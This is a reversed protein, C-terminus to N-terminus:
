GKVAGRTLGATIRKQFLITLIIVPIITVVAAAMINGWPIEGHLGQFLAIGVPVTRAHYDTTLLLAYLFENFALIFALLMTSLLAPMALPLIIRRYINWNSCGDIIAAKDLARPLQGFYSVLIWLCVPLVFAIYPLVLGQYTNIWGLESIMKFLFGSVSIQPFMSVLLAVGLITNRGSIKLRSIAFAALSAAFVAILASLGSIILSNKLYDLFHLSGTAIVKRYNELSFNFSTGSALYDPSQAFSTIIMFAFPLLCFVLMITISTIRLIKKLSNENM